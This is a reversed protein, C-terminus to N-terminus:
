KQKKFHWYPFRTFAAIFSSNEYSASINKLLLLVPPRDLLARSWPLLVIKTWLTGLSLRFSVGESYKKGSNGLM